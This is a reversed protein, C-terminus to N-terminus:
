APGAPHPGRDSVLFLGRLANLPALYTRPLRHHRGQSVRLRRPVLGGGLAYLGLEAPWYPSRPGASGTSNLAWFALGAVIWFWINWLGRGFLSQNQASATLM